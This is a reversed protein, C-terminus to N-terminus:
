DKSAILLKIFFWSCIDKISQDTWNQQDHWFVNLVHGNDRQTMSVERSSFIVLYRSFWQMRYIKTGLINHCMLHLDHYESRWSVSFYQIDKYKKLGVMLGYRNKKQIKICWTTYLVIGGPTKYGSRGQFLFHIHQYSNLAGSSFWM